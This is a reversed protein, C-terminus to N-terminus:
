EGLRDRPLRRTERLAAITRKQAAITRDMEAITRDKQRCLEQLATCLKRLEKVLGDRPDRWGSNQAVMADGSFLFAGAGREAFRGQV